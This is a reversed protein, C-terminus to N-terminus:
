LDTKPPCDREIEELIEALAIPEIDGIGAVALSRKIANKLASVKEEHTVPYELINRM